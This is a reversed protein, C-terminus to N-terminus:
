LETFEGSMWVDVDTLEGATVAVDARVQRAYGEKAFVLTYRGPAVDTIVYNGQDTTSASQGTEVIRVEAGGLPVDFDKDHVVGRISGGQAQPRAGLHAAAAENFSLMAALVISCWSIWRVALSGM